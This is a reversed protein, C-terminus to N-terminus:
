ANLKILSLNKFHKEALNNTKTWKHSQTHHVDKYLKKASPKNWVLTWMIIKEEDEWRMLNDIYWLQIQRETNFNKTLLRWKAWAKKIHIPIKESKFTPWKKWTFFIANRVLASQFTTNKEKYIKFKISGKYWDMIQLPWKASSENNEIDKWWSSEIDMLTILYKKYNEILIKKNNTIFKETFIIKEWNIYVAKNKLVKNIWLLIVEETERSLWKEKLKDTYKIYKNNEETKQESESKQNKIKEIKQVKNQNKVKWPIYILIIVKWSEEMKRIESWKSIIWWEQYKKKVWNNDIYFINKENYKMNNDRTIIGYMTKDWDIVWLLEWQIKKSNIEKKLEWITKKTSKKERITEIKKSLNSINGSINSINKFLENPWIKTKKTKESKLWGKKILETETYEKPKNFSM